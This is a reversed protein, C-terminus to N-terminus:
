FGNPPKIARTIERKGIPGSPSTVHFGVKKLRRKFAGQACFTVLIANPNMRQYVKLLLAETWLDQQCDPAFADYFVLDINSPLTSSLIDGHIPFFQFNPHLMVTPLSQIMAQHMQIFYRLLDDQSLSNSADQLLKFYELDNVVHLPVPYKEITHYRLVSNNQIAWHLSLLANLGTGFGMEFIRIESSPLTPSNEIFYNLGAQLFIHRSEQLAGWHSHYLTKYLPHFISKSGDDTPVIRFDLHKTM